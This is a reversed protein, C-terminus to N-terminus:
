LQLTLEDQALAPTALLALAAVAAIKKMPLTEKNSRM